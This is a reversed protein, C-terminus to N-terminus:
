RYWEPPHGFTDYSYRECTTTYFLAGLDASSIHGIASSFLTSTLTTEDDTLRNERRACEWIMAKVADGLSEALDYGEKAGPSGPQGPLANAANLVAVTRQYATDYTYRMNQIVMHVHEADM